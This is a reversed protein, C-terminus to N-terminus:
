FPIDDDGPERPRQAAAGGYLAQQSGQLGDRHQPRLGQGQPAGQPAQPANQAPQQFAQAVRERGGQQGRYGGEPQAPRGDDERMIFSFGRGRDDPTSPIYFVEGEIGKDNMWATGVQTWVKGETGDQRKWPRGHLIKLRINAM